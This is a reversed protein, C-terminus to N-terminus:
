YSADYHKQWIVIVSVNYKYLIIYKIIRIIRVYYFYLVDYM